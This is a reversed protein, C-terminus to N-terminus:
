VYSDLITVTGSTPISDLACSKTTGSVIVDRVDETSHEDFQDLVAATAPPLVTTPASNGTSNRVSAVKENFYDLLQQATPQESDTRMHTNRGLLINFTQWLKRPQNGHQAIKTSWYAREKQQYIRHRVREHKICKQRDSSQRSGKYLVRM